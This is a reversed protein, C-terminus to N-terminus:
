VAKFQAVFERALWLQVILQVVAFGVFAWRLKPRTQWLTFFMPVLFPLLPTCDRVANQWTSQSYAVVVLSVMTVVFLFQRRWALWVSVLLFILLYITPVLHQAIYGASATSSVGLVGAKFNQAVQALSFPYFGQLSLFQWPNGTFWWNIFLWGNLTVVMVLVQWRKVVMWTFLSYGVLRVGPLALLLFSLAVKSWTQAMSTSAVWLSLALLLMFVGDPAATMNLFANPTTLHFLFTILRGVGFSRFFIEAFCAGALFFALLNVVRATTHFDKRAIKSVLGIMFAYGPPMTLSETIKEYGSQSIKEHTQAESQVWQAQWEPQSAKRTAVFVLAGWLAFALVFLILNRLFIFIKSVSKLM